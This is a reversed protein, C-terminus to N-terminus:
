KYHNSLEIINCVTIVIDENEAQIEFEIRYQLNVRVSYLGKKDGQLAEFNLSQYRYLAEPTIAEQMRYICKTYAKIIEPQFRHKKDTTKGTEYLERLYEKEFTINM